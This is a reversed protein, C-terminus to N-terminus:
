FMVPQGTFSFNTLLDDPSASNILPWIALSFFHSYDWPPSDSWTSCCFGWFCDGLLVVLGSVTLDSGWRNGCGQIVFHLVSHGIPPDLTMQGKFRDLSLHGSDWVSFVHMLLNRLHYILTVLVFHWLKRTAMVYLSTMWGLWSSIM